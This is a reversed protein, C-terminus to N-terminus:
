ERKLFRDPMAWNLWHSQLLAAWRSNLVTPEGVVDSPRKISQHVPNDVGHEAPAIGRM